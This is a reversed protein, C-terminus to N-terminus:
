EYRLVILPDVQTARRAPLFCATLGVALIVAVVTGVTWPDTPKVGWLQSAILRTLALSALVGVIIGAVILSLGKRLVMALINDQQAGLAMRVGIEHTQLSVTYTMVSFVGIVVLSLGITAFGSLVILGFQPVAYDRKQLYSEISGTEALAVNADVAWIQRRIAPLLSNPEIGTRVMLGFLPLRGFTTYPIFAGPEPPKQLGANRVDSVVGIIEFLTHHLVDPIKDFVDFKISQGIPNETGFYRRALAQNIVAVHMASTVDNESLVRGRLLHLELARFYGESCLALGATWRESHAKGPITIESGMRSYPPFSLTVTAATVGPVTQVHELVQRFFTNQRPGTEYSGKPLQLRAYLINEPNFGLNVHQLGFFTRMMLGAGILLVISLAVEAVALMARLKGHRFGTGVGKGTGTLRTQSNGRLTHVAPTLGCLVTTMVTLSLAFLLVVPNMEIVAEQPLDNYPVFPVVLKIGIWAFLCGALCGATALAFSEALLQRILRGSSAGLSSRVAIKRERVTARALLLNAVNSCSILLLLVVAGVLLYILTKFRGVVEDTHSAATVNFEKPFDNPHTKAIQHAVVDLDAAAAGLTVGPKLRGVPWFWVDGNFIPNVFKRDLPFPIWIDPEGWRFRPPMVGVLTRPIGDLAFSKGIVAPGSNFQDHWLKYSMMFVPTAGPKTDETTAWRGRLPQVGMFEFTNASVYYTSFELTRDSTKYLVTTSGFGGFGCIMDDFVHNRERYDLFDPLPMPEEGGGAHAADHVAFNTIRSAGAYPFTNLLVGYAASFIVTASGVGLALALIALATFKRDKALIRVGYRLDQWIDEIWQTGRMDRCEEKTKEVRGFDRLAAERAERLNMGTAIYDCTKMGVHFQVEEDLEDDLRGHRLLSRLKKILPM